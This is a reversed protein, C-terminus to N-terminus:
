AKIEEYFSRLLRNEPEVALGMELHHIANKLDDPGNRFRFAVACNYHALAFKPDVETVMIFKAIAEEVVGRAWTYTDTENQIADVLETQFNELRTVSALTVMAGEEIEDHLRKNSEKIAEKTENIVQFDAILGSTSALLTAQGELMPVIREEDGKLGTAVRLLLDANNQIARGLREQAKKHADTGAPFIRTASIEEEVGSMGKGVQDILNIQMMASQIMINELNARVLEIKRATQVDQLPTDRLMVGLDQQLKAVRDLQSFVLSSNEEIEEGIGSHIVMLRSPVTEQWEEIATTAERLWAEAKTIRSSAEQIALAGENNLRSAVPHFTAEEPTWIPDRSPVKLGSAMAIDVAFVLLGIFGGVLIKVWITKM